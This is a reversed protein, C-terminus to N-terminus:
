CMSLMDSNLHQFLDTTNAVSVAGVPNTTQVEFGTYCVSELETEREEVM